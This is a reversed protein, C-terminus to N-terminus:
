HKAAEEEEKRCDDCIHDGYEEYDEQLGCRIQMMMDMLMDAHGERKYYCFLVYGIHGTLVDLMRDEEMTEIVNNIKDWAESYSLIRKNETNSM